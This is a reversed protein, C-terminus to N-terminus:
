FCVPLTVNYDDLKIMCGPPFADPQEATTDLQFMRLQIEFRPLPQEDSKYFLKQIDEIALAFICQHRAEGPRPQINFAPLETM